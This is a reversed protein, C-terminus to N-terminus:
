FTSEEGERKDDTRKREQLVLEQKLALVKEIDEKVFPKDGM